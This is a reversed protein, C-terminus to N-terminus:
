AIAQCDTVNVYFIIKPICGVYGCTTVRLDAHNGFSRTNSNSNGDIIQIQIIVMQIFINQLTSILINRQDSLRKFWHYWRRLSFIFFIMVPRNEIIKM